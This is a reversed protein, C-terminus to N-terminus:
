EFSLDDPIDDTEFSVDFANSDILARLKPAILKKILEIADDTYPNNIDDPLEISVGTALYVDIATKDESEALPAVTTECAPCGEQWYEAPIDRKCDPCTVMDGEQWPQGIDENYIEDCLLFAKWAADDINDVDVTNTEDGICVKCGKSNTALLFGMAFAAAAEDTMFSKNVKM